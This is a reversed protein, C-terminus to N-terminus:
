QALRRAKAFVDEAPVLIADGREYAAIRAQLEVDWAQEVDAKTSPHLSDLMAEALQAREEPALTRALQTVETLLASM